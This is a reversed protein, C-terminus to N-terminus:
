GLEAALEQGQGAQVPVEDEVLLDGGELEERLLDDGLHCRNVHAVPSVLQLHGPHEAELRPPLGIGPSGLAEGNEV